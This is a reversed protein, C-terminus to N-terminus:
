SSCIGTELKAPCATAMASSTLQRDTRTWKRQLIWRLLERDSPATPHRSGLMATGEWPPPPDSTNGPEAWVGSSPEEKYGTLNDDGEKTVNQGRTASALNM